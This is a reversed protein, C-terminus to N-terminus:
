RVRRVPIVVPAGAGPAGARIWYSGAPLARGSQDHAPLPIPGLDGAAEVRLVERGSVDYLGLTVRGGPGADNGAGVALPARVLMTEGVRAPNPYAVWDGCPVSAKALPGVPAATGAALSYFFAKLEENGAPSDLDANEVSGDGAALEGGFLVRFDEAFIEHPRQAHPAAGCYMTTDTLGRLSRYLTWGVLNSDPLIARQVAHGLEHAALHAAQEPTYPHVGPSLYVARDDCASSLCGSRPYPLLFIDISLPSLFQGPVEGLLALVESAEVPHFAGDGANAIEPDVPSLIFKWRAGSGDLFYLAGDAGTETYESLVQAAPVVHITPFPPLSEAPAPLAALAGALGALGLIAARACQTWGNAEIRSAPNKM